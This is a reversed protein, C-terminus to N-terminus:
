QGTASLSRRFNYRVLARITLKKGAREAPKFRLSRVTAAASEDLGFGAWRVVEVEGVRGDAGFVAELEVTATIDALGAEETYAPKLRQYFVPQATGKGDMEDTLVEIVEGPARPVAELAALSRENAATIADACRAWALKVAAALQARAQTEESSQAREFSFL